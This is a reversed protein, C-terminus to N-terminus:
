CGAMLSLLRICKEQHSIGLQLGMFNNKYIIDMRSHERHSVVGQSWKLHMEKSTGDQNVYLWGV